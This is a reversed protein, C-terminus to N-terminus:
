EEQQLEILTADLLNDCNKIQELIKDYASQIKNTNRLHFRFVKDRQNLIGDRHTRLREKFIRIVKCQAEQNIERHEPVAM